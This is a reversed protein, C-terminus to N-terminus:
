FLKQASYSCECRRHGGSHNIQCLRFFPSIFNSFMSCTIFLLGDRMATVHIQGMHGILFLGSEVVRQKVELVKVTKDTRPIPPSTVPCATIIM